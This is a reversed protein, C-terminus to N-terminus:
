ERWLTAADLPLFRMSHCVSLSLSPRASPAPFSLPFVKQMGCAAPADCDADASQQLFGPLLVVTHQPCSSRGTTDCDM